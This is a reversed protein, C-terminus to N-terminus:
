VLGAKGGSQGVSYADHCCPTPERKAVLMDLLLIGRGAFFWPKEVFFFRFPFLFVSGKSIPPTTVTPLATVWCLPCSGSLPPIGGVLHVGVVTVIGGGLTFGLASGAPFVGPNVFPPGIGLLLVM